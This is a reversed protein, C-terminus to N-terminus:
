STSQLFKLLGDYLYTVILVDAAIDVNINSDVTGATWQKDVM